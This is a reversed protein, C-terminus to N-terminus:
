WCRNTVIGFKTNGVVSTVLKSAPKLLDIVRGQENLTKTIVYAKLRENTIFEYKMIQEGKLNHPPNSRGKTYTQLKCSWVRLCGIRM